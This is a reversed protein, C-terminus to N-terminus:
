ETRLSKVPNAIAARVSQFSVTILAIFLVLLGALAFVWWEITIKYQYDKLWNFMLWWSVPFAIVISLLVPKLFDKSLLGTIGTVTAGLVKRIGIEKTRREATFSALGFLGLCSIIIALAAFVGALKGILTEARFFRGFEADVFEYEFPYGPNNDKIVKEIAVIAKSIDANAKIRISLVNTHLADGFLIVPDAPKYVNNSVFDNVVGIITYKKNSATITSGVIEKKEIIKALTENIIINTSDTKLDVYFDRGEKLKMNMTSIYEPGVGETTILVTKNVPKGEWTFDGSNSGQSLVTNWSQAINEILGTNLLDTKIVSFHNRMDGNFYTTILRDKKFGLDKEKGYQIQQYIIVTCIILIVSASFQTVVLAKRIFAASGTKLKTGKLVLAPNFSSLYFAPYSGALIGCVLAIVVLSGFHLPMFIQLSLNKHVLNNFAPLALSIIAIALLMSIFSLLISESLFQFILKQKAAGMVKRIGVEKARKESRATALNMFNICAIILIIWAILSFLRINKILGEKETGSTDFSNYLRIRNFPYLLMKAITSESNKRQVINYLQKNIATVNANPETEAYTIIGNSGWKTLWQNQEEFVKFSILWDFKISVNEPLDKFVGSVVYDQKNDIKLTKGIIDTSKFFKKAMKESIVVTHVQTFTNAANGKTFPVSFMTLFGSDVYLGNENITKDGLSFLLPNAWSIRATTKIGPTEAKIAQALPGPTADFVFTKGDYTQKDKVIYLNNRNPFYHNYNLEDEVWLFILSACAIGVALGFINLFSFTKNRFINRFTIIFYNKLM